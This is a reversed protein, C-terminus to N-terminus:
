KREHMSKGLRVMSYGRGWFTLIEVATGLKKRIHYVHVKLRDEFLTKDAWGDDDPWVADSLADTSVTRGHCQDLKYVLITELPSLYVRTDRSVKDRFALQEDSLRIRFRGM